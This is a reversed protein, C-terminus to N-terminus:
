YDNWLRKSFGHQNGALKLAGFGGSRDAGFRFDDGVFVAKPALEDAVFQVAEGSM